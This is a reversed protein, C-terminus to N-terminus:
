NNWDCCMMTGTLPSARNILANLKGLQPKHSFAPGASSEPTGTTTLGPVTVAQSVWRMTASTISAPMRGGPANDMTHPLEVPKSSASVGKSTSDKVPEASVAAAMRLWAATARSETRTLMSASLRLEVIKPSSACGPVGANSKNTSLRTRSMVILLPWRQVAGRRASTGLCNNWATASAAAPLSAAMRTPLGRLASTLM